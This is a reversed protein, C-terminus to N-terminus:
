FNLPIKSFYPYTCKSADLIIGTEKGVQLSTYLLKTRSSNSGCNDGTELWQRLGLTELLEVYGPIDLAFLQPLLHHRFNAAADPFTTFSFILPEIWFAELAPAGTAISVQKEAQALIKILTCFTQGAAPAADLFRMWNLLKQAFDQLIVRDSKSAVDQALDDGMFVRLQSTFTELSIVKKSFFVSLIQFAPKVKVHDSQSLLILFVLHLSGTKIATTEDADFSPLLAVLVALLQRMSKGKASDSRDLIVSLINFWQDRTLPRRLGISQIHGIASCIANTAAARHSGVIEADYATKTFNGIIADFGSFVIDSSSSVAHRSPRCVM